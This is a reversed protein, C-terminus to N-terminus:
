FGAAVSHSKPSSISRVWPSNPAVIGSVGVYPTNISKDVRWIFREFLYGSCFEFNLKDCIEHLLFM